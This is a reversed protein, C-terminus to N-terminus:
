RSKAWWPLWQDESYLGFPWPNYDALINNLALSDTAFQLAKQNDNNDSVLNLPM